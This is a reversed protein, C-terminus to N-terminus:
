KSMATTWELGPFAIQYAGTTVPWGPDTSLVAIYANGDNDYATSHAYKPGFGAGSYTSFVLNPDIVLPLGADFGNPFQFSLTGDADLKYESLVTVKKGDIWQYTYPALERVENVSTQIILDGNSAIRPTVGEFSLRIQGPDSGPAVVFDYKVSNNQAGYLVFDIGPYVERQAVGGFVG